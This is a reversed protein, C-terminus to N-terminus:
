IFPRPRVRLSVHSQGRASGGKAEDVARQFLQMHTDALQPNSWDTQPVTMLRFLAGDAIAQDWRSGVSDPIDLADRSPMTVLTVTTPQTVKASFMVTSPPEFFAALLRGKDDEARALGIIETDPPADVEYLSKPPDEPSVSVEAHMVHTQRCFDRVSDLVSREAVPRPCSPVRPMVLPLLQNLEM